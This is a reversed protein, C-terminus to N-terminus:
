RRLLSGIAIILVMAITRIVKLVGRSILPRELAGLLWFVLPPDEIVLFVVSRLRSTNNEATVRSTACRYAAKGYPVTMRFCDDTSPVARIERISSHIAM